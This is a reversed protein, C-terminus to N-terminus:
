NQTTTKTARYTKANCNKIRNEKNQANCNKQMATAKNKRPLKNEGFLLLKYPNESARLYSAGGWGALCRGWVSALWGAAM